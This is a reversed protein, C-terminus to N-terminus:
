LFYGKKGSGQKHEKKMRIYNSFVLHDFFTSPSTLRQKIVDFMRASIAIALALQDENYFM